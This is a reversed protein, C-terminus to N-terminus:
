LKPIKLKNRSIINNHAFFENAYIQMNKVILIQSIAYLEVWERKVYEGWRCLRARGNHAYKWVNEM